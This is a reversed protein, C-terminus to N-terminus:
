DLMFSPGIAAYMREDMDRNARQQAKTPRYPRAKKKKPKSRGTQRGGLERLGNILQLAAAATNLATVVDM